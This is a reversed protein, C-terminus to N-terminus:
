GASGYHDECKEPLYPYREGGRCCSGAADSLELSVDMTVLGTTNIHPTVKLIVGTDRREITIEERNDIFIKSAVLPVEDGIDISAEKGDTAIIHPNALINVMNESALANLTAIWNGRIVSATLGGSALAGAASLGLSTGVIDRHLGGGLDKGQFAFEVGLNTEDTLTLEAVLIKILVQRPVIDLEGLMQKVIQYDRPSAKIILTNTTTYPIVKVEGTIIEPPKPVGKKAVVQSPTKGPTVSKTLSASVSPVARRKGARDQAFASNLIAALENAIGSKVHYIFIQVEDPTSRRDLEDIWKDVEDFAWPLSSIVLLANIRSVPIFNIGAGRGSKSPVELASFIKQLEQSVEQVDAEEMPYLKIRVHKFLNIDLIDIISILKSLNTEFDTILLISNKEYVTIDAGASAFPKLISAVETASIFQLRVVQLVINDQPPLVFKKGEARPILMRTKVSQSPVVHYLDGAKLITAGNVKLISRFIDFLDEKSIKGKTHINVTGKVAPDIIYNIGLINSITKIVEYIAANDFNLSVNSSPASSGRSRVLEQEVIGAKGSSGGRGRQGVQPKVDVRPIEGSASKGQLPAKVARNSGRVVPGPSGTAPKETAVKKTGGRLPPTVASANKEQAVSKKVEGGEEKVLPAVPSDPAVAKEEAFSERVQIAGCWVWAFIILLFLLPMSKRVRKSTM